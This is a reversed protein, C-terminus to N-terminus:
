AKERSSSVSLSPHVSIRNDRGYGAVRSNVTGMHVYDNPDTKENPEGRYQEEMDNYDRPDKSGSGGSSNSTSRGFSPFRPSTRAGGIAATPQQGGIEGRVKDTGFWLVSTRIIAILCVLLWVAVVCGSLIAEERLMSAWKQILKVLIDTIKDAAVSSTDSLFSQAGDADPAISNEAGLSFTNNPLLPFTIHANEHVWTLGNQIGKIKLGVLCNLVDKIPEAFPTKGFLTDVGDYMKDVFVTLTDNVADTGNVVWGFLERNLEANTSNIAENTQTAWAMSAATLSKVVIDAFEGVEAALEPAAKEVQKLVIYQAAVGALGAIGLSLVFLAPTSTVYAVAWRVLTQRRASQFVGSAKLGVTSSFPRSSIVIIDIPDWTHNPDAIMYARSRTTRWNWIERYAMPIIALLALIAIVIILIKKATAVTGELGNFFDNISNNDSCFTLREKQPVPFVARDFEYVGISQNVLKTIEKFPIRIANDAAEKVEDFTPINDRISNLASDFEDPINIGKLGDLSPIDLTPINIDMGLFVPMNNITDVVKNYAGEFKEVDGNIGDLVKDLTGNIFDAIKETADLVAGLSGQVALTILCVYTSTLLNVVFVVIEQVATIVLLLSKEMARVGTEISKAALENVGAAMYSPMSAMASGMSEVSTCASLAEARASVLDSDLSRTALILRVLVLFLLLTWRNFWVQSLRAQLGLYPTLNPNTSPMRQKSNVADEYSPAETPYNNMFDNNYHPAYRQPTTTDLM